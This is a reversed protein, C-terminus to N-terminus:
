SLTSWWLYLIIGWRLFSLIDERTIISDSMINVRRYWTGSLGTWKHWPCTRRNPFELKVWISINILYSLSKVWRECCLHCVTSYSFLIEIEKAGGLLGTRRSRKNHLFFFKRRHDITKKKTWVCNIIWLDVDSLISSNFIKIAYM